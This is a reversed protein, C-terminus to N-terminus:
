WCNVFTEVCFLPNFATNLYRKPWFSPKQVDEWHFIWIQFNCCSTKRAQLRFVPTCPYMIYNFLLTWLFRNKSAEENQKSVNWTKATQPSHIFTFTFRVSYFLLLHQCSRVKVSLKVKQELFYLIYKYILSLSHLIM